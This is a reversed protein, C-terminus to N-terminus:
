GISTIGKSCENKDVRKLNTNWFVLLFALLNVNAGDNNIIKIM